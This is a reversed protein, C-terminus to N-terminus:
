DGSLGLMLLLKCNEARARGNEQSPLLASFPPFSRDHRCSSVEMFGWCYLTRLAELNTFVDVSPPHGM